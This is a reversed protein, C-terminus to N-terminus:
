APLDRLVRALAEAFLRREPPTGVTVRICRNLPAVGPMRVFVGERELLAAMTAKARATSGM